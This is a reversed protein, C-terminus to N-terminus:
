FEDEQEGESDTDFEGRQSHPRKSGVRARDGSGGLGGGGDGDDDVDDDGDDDGDDDDGVTANGAKAGKKGDDITYGAAEM